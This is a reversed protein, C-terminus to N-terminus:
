SKNQLAKLKEYKRHEEEKDLIMFDMVKWLPSPIHLVKQDHIDVFQEVEENQSIKDTWQPEVLYAKGVSLLDYGLELAHEADQRQAISGVGILPIKALQASQMKIYKNILPETDEQNVISTRQYSNASIHFYDPEYEALTNLLFM